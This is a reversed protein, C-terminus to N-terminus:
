SRVFRCCGVCAGFGVVNSHVCVGGTFYCGSKVEPSLIDSRCFHRCVGVGVVRKGALWHELTLTVDPYFGAVVCAPVGGVLYDCVRVGFHVRWDHWFACLFKVDSM